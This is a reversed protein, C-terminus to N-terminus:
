YGQEIRRCVEEASLGDAEIIPADVTTDQIGMVNSNLGTVVYFDCGSGSQDQGQGSLEVVEYGKDRLAGQVNTLTPEVGIRKM